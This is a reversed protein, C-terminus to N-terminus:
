NRFGNGQAKEKEERLIQELHNEYDKVTYFRSDKGKIELQLLQEFRSLATYLEFAYKIYNSIQAPDDTGAAKAAKESFFRNGLFGVLHGVPSPRLDVKKDKIWEFYKGFIADKMYVNQMQSTNRYEMILDFRPDIELDQPTFIWQSQIGLKNQLKEDLFAAHSYVAPVQEGILSYALSAVETCYLASHDKGDLRNDYDIHGGNKLKESVHLWLAQSARESLAQDKNRFLAIRTRGADIAESSSSVVVGVGQDSEIAKLDKTQPDQSIFILHAFQGPIDSARAAMSGLLNSSRVLVIDGPRLSKLISERSTTQKEGALYAQDDLYRAQSIQLRVNQVEQVSMQNRILSRAEGMADASAHAETFAVTLGALFFILFRM